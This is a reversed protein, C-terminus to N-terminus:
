LDRGLMAAADELLKADLGQQDERKARARDQLKRVLERRDARVIEADVIDMLKVSGAFQHPRRTGDSTLVHVETDLALVPIFLDEPDRLLRVIPSGNCAPVAREAGHKTTYSRM